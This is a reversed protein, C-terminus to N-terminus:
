GEMPIAAQQLLEAAYEMKAKDDNETPTVVVVIAGSNIQEDYLEVLRDTQEDDHYTASGLMAGITGGALGGVGATVVAIPWAVIATAAGLAVGISAGAAAVVSPATNLQPAGPPMLRSRFEERRTEDSCLVYIQEAAFGQNVLLKTAIRSQEATDYFAVRGEITPGVPDTPQPMPEPAVPM